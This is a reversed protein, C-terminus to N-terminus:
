IRAGKNIADIIVTASALVIFSFCVIKLITTFNMNKM